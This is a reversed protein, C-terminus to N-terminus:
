RIRLVSDVVLLSIGDTNNEVFVEVFDGTTLTLQWPSSTNGPDTAGVRNTKGSNAIITGNLALYTTIDKNTGSASQITTVIDVPVALDREGNYTLRGATTGTFFSTGEVVWTGAVLTPTDVTGVVTNTVNANLSLLGDPNTDSIEDNGLFIWRIDNPSVGSLPTSAGAGFIRTGTVSGVNGVNINASSAAGTLMKTAAALSVFSKDIDFANFTAAGLDFLSGGNVFSLNTQSTFINFAGAFTHGDTKINNYAVNVLQFAALGTFIGARDCSDVTADVFQFLGAGTPADINFLRGSPADLTVRTIKNATDSATFMDGSGTYTISAVSSDLGDIVSDQSLVFRTDGAPINDSVRYLTAAALTIVGGVAAPFDSLFNIIVENNPTGVAFLEDFNDNTKDMAARWTDGTGDNAVAGINITQQVM